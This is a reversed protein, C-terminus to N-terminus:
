PHHDLYPYQCGLHHGQQVMVEQDEPSDGEVVYELCSHIKNLFTTSALSNPAYLVDPITDEGDGLGGVVAQEMPCGGEAVYESLDHLQNIFATLSPVYDVMVESDGLGVM